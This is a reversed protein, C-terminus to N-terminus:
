TCPHEAATQMRLMVKINCMHLLHHPPRYLYCVKPHCLYLIMSSIVLNILCFFFMITSLYNHISNVAASAAETFEIEGPERRRTTHDLQDVTNVLLTLTCNTAMHGAALMMYTDMLMLCVFVCREFMRLDNSSVAFAMTLCRLMNSHKECNCESRPLLCVAGSLPSAHLVRGLKQYNFELFHLHSVM